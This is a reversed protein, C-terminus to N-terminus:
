NIENSIKRNIIKKLDNIENLQGNSVEGNKLRNATISLANIKQDLDNFFNNQLTNNQLLENKIKTLSEEIFANM